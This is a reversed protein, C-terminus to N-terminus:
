AKECVALRVYGMPMQRAAAYREHLEAPEYDHVLRFGFGALYAPLENPTIGWLWPEGLQAVRRAKGLAERNTSTGDIVDALLYDWVLKTGARSLSSLRELTDAVAQATLYYSVGVWVFYTPMEPNFGAALLREVFDDKEFDVAVFRLNDPLGLQQSQARKTQQTAPHDIEFVTAQSLATRCRWAHTEFGAGLIVVQALGPEAAVLDDVVRSRIALLEQGGPAWHRLFYLLGRSLWRSRAVRRYFPNLLFTAAFPDDIIREALPQHQELARILAMAEATRSYDQRM